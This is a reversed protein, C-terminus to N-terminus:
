FDCKSNPETILGVTIVVQFGSKRLRGAVAEATAFAAKGCDKPRVLVGSEPLDKRAVSLREVVTDCSGERKQVACVKGDSSVEVSVFKPDAGQSTVCAGLTVGLVALTKRM